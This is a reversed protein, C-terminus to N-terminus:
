ANRIYSKQALCKAHLNIFFTKNSIKTSSAPTLCVLLFVVAAISLIKGYEKSSKCM